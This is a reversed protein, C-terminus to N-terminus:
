INRSRAKLAKLVCLDFFSEVVNVPVIEKFVSGDDERQQQKCAPCEYNPLGVVAITNKNIYEKVETIFKELIREDGSLIDISGNIESRGEIVGGDDTTIKTVYINYIGLVVAATNENVIRNKEDPDTTDTFLSESSKIINNIWLEGNDVYDFLNPMNLSITLEVGDTTKVRVDKNKNIYLTNQYEIVSDISASNPNRKSMHELHKKDIAKKNVWSLKRFDVKSSVTASCLPTENEDLVISNVCSRTLTYGKPYMSYLVGLVLIYYDQVKIYKRIDEDPSIDITANQINKVIFESLIRNFVVSYNSFVLSNTDRGLTIQNNTLQLELNIFDIDKIPKLTVWFGSHWLPVQTTEGVGLVSAIRAIAADGNLARGKSNIPLPRISLDKSGYSVNNVMAPDNLPESLMDETNTKDLSEINIGLAINDDESFKERFKEKNFENINKLLEVIESYIATPMIINESDKEPDIARNDSTPDVKYDDYNEQQVREIDLDKTEEVIADNEEVTHDDVVPPENNEM